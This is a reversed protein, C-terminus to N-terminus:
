FIDAILKKQITNSHNKFVYFLNFLVFKNFYMKIKKKIKRM